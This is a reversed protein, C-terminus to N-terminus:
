PTEDRVINDPVFVIWDVDYLMSSYRERLLVTTVIKREIRTNTSVYMKLTSQALEYLTDDM